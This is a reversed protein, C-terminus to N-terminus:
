LMNEGSGFASKGYAFAYPGGPNREAMWLGCALALVLDDNAGERWALSDDNRHLPVKMRFNQLERMLLDGHPIRRPIRLRGTQFTVQMRSVLERKPV